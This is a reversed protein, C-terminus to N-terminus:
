RGSPAASRASIPRTGPDKINHQAASLVELPGVFDLADMGPHLTFLVKIPEMSESSEAIASMKGISSPRIESIAIVAHHHLPATQKGSL